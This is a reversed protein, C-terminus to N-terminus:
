SGEENADSLTLDELGPYELPSDYADSEEWVYERTIVWLWLRESPDIAPEEVRPLSHDVPGLVFPAGLPEPITFDDLSTAGKARIEVTESLRWEEFPGRQIKPRFPPTMKVVSLPRRGGRLAFTRTVDTTKGIARFPEIRTWEARASKTTGLDVSVDESVIAASSRQERVWSEPDEGGSTEATETIRRIGKVPDVVTRTSSTARTAGSSGTVAGTVQVQSVTEVVHAEPYLPHRYIFGLATGGVTRVYGVPADLKLRAKIADTYDAPDAIVSAKAFRFRTTLRQVENGWEDNENEYDASFECIGDSDPLSRRALIVISFTAGSVLQGDGAPLDFSAVRVDEWNLTPSREEDVDFPSIVTGAEDKLRFRGCTRTDQWSALATTLATMVAAPTDARLRPVLNFTYNVAVAENPSTNERVIRETSISTAPALEFAYSGIELTYLAM